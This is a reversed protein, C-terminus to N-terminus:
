LHMKDRIVKEKKSLRLLLILKILWTSLDCIYYFSSHESPHTIVFYLAKVGTTGVHTNGNDHGDLLDFQFVPSIGDNWTISTDRNCDSKDKLYRFLGTSFIREM